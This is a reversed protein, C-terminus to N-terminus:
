KLVVAITELVAPLDSRVQEADVRVMRYGARELARQRRADRVRRRAHYKGDVEVVLRHSPAYFDVIFRDLLVVQRRFRVGLQSSRLARWLAEESETAAAVCATLALLSCLLALLLTCSIRRDRSAVPVLERM